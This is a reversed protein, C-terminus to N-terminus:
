PAAPKGKLDKLVDAELVRRAPDLRDYLDAFARANEAAAAVYTRLGRLM